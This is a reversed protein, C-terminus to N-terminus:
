WNTDRRKSLNKSRGHSAKIEFFHALIYVWLFKLLSFLFGVAKSQFRPTQFFVKYGKINTALAIPRSLSCKLLVWWCFPLNPNCGAINKDSKFCCFCFLDNNLICSCYFTFYIRSSSLQLRDYVLDLM